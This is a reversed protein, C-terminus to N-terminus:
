LPSRSFRAFLLMGVVQLVVVMGFLVKGNPDTFFFQMYGPNMQYVLYGFAIPLMAMVGGQMRAMFTLTKIREKLKRRERLTEVLRSFIRTIDGGTERAVLVATVFLTVDESPMRAKLHIMAEDLNVGMRTEKLMLGFEQSIPAPMEEALVTFAQLMSLGAKLSSSLLLLGDMLQQHFQRTRLREINKLVLKPLLLGIASGVVGGLVHKTLMWGFVASAVPSFVYALWLRRRSWEMFMESLQEGAEEAKRNVYVAARQKLPEYAIWGVLVAAGFWLVYMLGLSITM